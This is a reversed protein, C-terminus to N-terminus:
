GASAPGAEGGSIRVADCHLEEAIVALDHRVAEVTFTKRSREEGPLFGTDYNIGRARM